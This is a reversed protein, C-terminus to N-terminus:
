KYLWIQPYHDAATGGDPVSAQLCIWGGTGIGGDAVTERQTTGDMQFTTVATLKFTVKDVNVSFTVEAEFPVYQKDDAFRHTYVVDSGKYSVTKSPAALKWESGDLYEMKWYGMSTESATLEFFIKAKEGANAGKLSEFKWFDGAWTGYARPNNAKMNNDANVKSLDIKNNNSSSTGAAVSGSHDFTITGETPHPMVGFDPSNAGWATKYYLEANASSQIPWKSILTWEPESGKAEQNVTITASATGESNKFTIVANRAEGDNKAVVFSYNYVAKVETITIWAPNGSFEPQFNAVVPISYTDGKAPVNLVNDTINISPAATGQSIEIVKMVVTTSNSALVVVKGDEWVAPATVSITGASAGTATATAKWNGQALAVVLSSADGGALTYAFVETAGAEMTAPGTISLTLPVIKPISIPDGAALTFVVNGGVEEVKSVAPVVSSGVEGILTYDADGDFKVYLKSGDIKFEPNQTKEGYVPVKNGEVLFFNGNLTWYYIGDADDKKAGLADGTGGTGNIISLTKGSQFLIDWGQATDTFNIIYDRKDIQGVLSSITNYDNKLQAVANEVSTLRADLDDIQTQLDANDGSECATLIAATAFLM